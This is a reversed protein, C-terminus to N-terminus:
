SRRAMFGAPPGSFTYLSDFAWAGPTTPSMCYASGRSTDGASGNTTGCLTTGIFLLMGEPSHGGETNTFVHILTESWLGLKPSSPSLRFVTNASTTGYLNGQEDAVIGALPEGGDLMPNFRHIVIEKWDENPNQPPSLQFVTGCGNNSNHPCNFGGIQTTGYITGSDDIVFGSNPNAGDGVETGEIGNFRYLLQEMWSGGNVRPPSLEYVTGCYQYFGDGCIKGHGGGYLTAGYLNGNKDSVIDGYPMYGDTGGEFSYLVQETWVGGKDTPPSLEFVAGCGPFTGLVECNGTGGGATAGYLNGNADRVLGGLPDSADGATHGQFTHLITETWPDGSQAPPSLEYVIGCLSYSTCTDSGGGQTVGYLNGTADLVTRGLPYQGDIGGQFSYLVSENSQGSASLAFAITVTLLIAPVREAMSLGNGPVQAVRATVTKAKDVLSWNSRTRLFM